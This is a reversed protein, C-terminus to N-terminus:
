ILLHHSSATVISSPFSELEVSLLDSSLEEAIGMSGEAESEDEYSQMEPRVSHSLPAGLNGIINSAFNLDSMKSPHFSDSHDNAMYVGRLNLMFRSILISAVAESILPVGGLTLTKNGILTTINLIMLFLFYIAGDRLLYTVVSYSGLVKRIGATKAWTIALILADYFISYSPLVLWLRALPKSINPKLTSISSTIIRSVHTLELKILTSKSNNVVRIIPPVAGLLAFVVLIKINRSWIAYLRLCMIASVNLSIDVDLLHYILSHPIPSRVDLLHSASMLLFLTAFIVNPTVSVSPTLGFPVLNVLMFSIIYILTFYRNVFFFGTAGSFRRQWIYHCEDSFTLTYDYCCLVTAVVICIREVIEAETDEIGSM